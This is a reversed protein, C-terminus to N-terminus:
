PEKRDRTKCPFPNKAKWKHQWGLKRYNARCTKCNHGVVVQNAADSNIGGLSDAIQAGCRACYVYGFCGEVIRSHGVLACITAKLTDGTLGHTRQLVEKRTLMSEAM